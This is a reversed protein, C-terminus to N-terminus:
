CRLARGACEPTNLEQTRSPSSSRWIHGESPAVPPGTLDDPHCRPSRAPLMGNQTPPTLTRRAQPADRGWSLARSPCPAPLKRLGKASRGCLCFFRLLPSHISPPSPCPATRTETEAKIGGWFAQHPSHLASKLLALHGWLRGPVWSFDQSPKLNSTACVSQRACM